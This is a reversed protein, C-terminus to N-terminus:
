AREIRGTIDDIDAEKSFGITFGSLYPQALAFRLSRDIQDGKFAGEGLIKMGYVVKGKRHMEELVAVVKNVEEAKEVDMIKAFPNIRALDVEVWPEAAAAKLADFSHCSCGVARVIGAAKAESLADMAGRLKTTWQGDTMCHLLVIDVYDTGMESRFRELDAKIGKADKASTKSTITVQDRKLEKLAAKLYPHTKYSDATDWWRVGQDFAHRFLHVLGDVGRSRQESGSKTGTGIALRSAKIGTKGLTVQDCAKPKAPRSAQIPAPKSTATAVQGLAPVASIGLFAAAQGIFERRNHMQGM